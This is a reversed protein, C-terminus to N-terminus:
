PLWSEISGPARGQKEACSQLYALLHRKPNLQNIQLPEFLTFLMAALRGSWESGYYNKRGVVPNLLLREAKNNDM